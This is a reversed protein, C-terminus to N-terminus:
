SLCDLLEQVLALNDAAIGRVEVGNPLVLSLGAAAPSALAVPVFGSRAHGAQQGPQRLKRAWYGFASTGLDQQRCYAKQSLGSAQWATVHNQWFTQRDTTSSTEM